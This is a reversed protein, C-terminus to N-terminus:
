GIPVPVFLRSDGRQVLLAVSKPAKAVVNRLQEVSTVNTGNAAIVVDGPEIGADAARGSVDEVILGGSSGLQGREQPTLPRVAIGLRSQADAPASRAATKQVGDMEGLKVTVDRQQQNRWVDVKV